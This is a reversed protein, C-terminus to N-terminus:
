LEIMALGRKRKGACMGGSRASAAMKTTVEAIYSFGADVAVLIIVNMFAPVACLAHVAVTRIHPAIKSEVMKRHGPEGQM